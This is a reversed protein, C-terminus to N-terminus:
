ASVRKGDVFVILEFPQFATWKENKTLPATVIVAARDDPQTHEAFDITLDEDSLEAPM